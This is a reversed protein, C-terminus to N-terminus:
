RVDFTFTVVRSHEVDQEFPRGYSFLIASKGITDTQFVWRSEGGVGMRGSQDAIYNESQLHINGSKEIDVSWNFGTSPNSPLSVQFMSGTQLVLLKEADVATFSKGNVPPAVPQTSECSVLLMLCLLFITRMM